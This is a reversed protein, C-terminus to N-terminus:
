ISHCPMYRIEGTLYNHGVLIGTDLVLRTSDYLIVIPQIQVRRYRYEDTGM